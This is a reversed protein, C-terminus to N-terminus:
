LSHLKEKNLNYVEISKSNNIMETLDELHQFDLLSQEKETLKRIFIFDKDCEFYFENRFRSSYPPLMKRQHELICHYNGSDQKIFILLVNEDTDIQVKKRTHTKPCFYYENIEILHMTKTTKTKKCKHKSVVFIYVSKRIQM